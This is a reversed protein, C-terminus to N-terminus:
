NIEPKLKTVIFYGLLLGVISFLVDNLDFVNNGGLNHIKFEQTITYVSAIVLATLYMLKKNINSRKTVLLGIGTLLLVGLIGEFFNPLSLVLIKLFEISTHQLVIPRLLKFLVFLVIIIFQIRTLKFIDQM